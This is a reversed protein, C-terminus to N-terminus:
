PESVCDAIMHTESSPAETREVQLALSPATPCKTTDVVITWCPKNTSSPPSTTNNCAPLVTEVQNAQGPNQVDSVSCDYQTGATTPDADALVGDFCPSSMGLVPIDLHIVHTTTGPGSGPPETCGGVLAIAVGVVYSAVADRMSM